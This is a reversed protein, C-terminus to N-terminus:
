DMEWDVDAKTRQNRLAVYEKPKEQKKGKFFDRVTGGLRRLYQRFGGSHELPARTHVPSSSSVASDQLLPPDSPMKIAAIAIKKSGKASILHEEAGQRGEESSKWISQQATRSRRNTPLSIHPKRGKYLTPKSLSFSYSRVNEM